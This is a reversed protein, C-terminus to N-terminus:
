LHNLSILRFPITNSTKERPRLKFHTEPKYTKCGELNFNKDKPLLELRSTKFSNCVFFTVTPSARMVDNMAFQFLFSPSKKHQNKPKSGFFSEVEVVSRHHHGLSKESGSDNIIRKHLEVEM